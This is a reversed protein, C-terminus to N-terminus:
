RQVNMQLTRCDMLNKRREKQEDDLLKDAKQVRSVRIEKSEGSVSAHVRIKRPQKLLWRPNKISGIIGWAAWHQVDHTHTHTYIYIISKGRRASRHRLTWLGRHRASIKFRTDSTACTEMEDARERLRLKKARVKHEQKSQKRRGKIRIRCNPSILRELLVSDSM